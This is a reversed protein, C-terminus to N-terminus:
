REKIHNCLQLINAMRINLVSIKQVEDVPFSSPGMDECSGNNEMFMQLSGIKEKVGDPHNFGKHLGSVVRREGKPHDLISAAVERLAGEGVTTGKKLGEGDTSLPLGRPNNVAMLEEDIPKFVSLYKSGSADMM